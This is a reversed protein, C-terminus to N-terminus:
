QSAPQVSGVQLVSSATPNVCSAIVRGGPKIPVIISTAEKGLTVAMKIPRPIKGKCWNLWTVQARGYKYHGAVPATLTVARQFGSTNGVNQQGVPLVAGHANRLKLHPWGSTTCSAGRSLRFRVTGVAAGGGPLNKNVARWSASVKVSSLSCSSLAAIHAPQGTTMGGAMVGVEGPSLEVAVTGILAFVVYQRMM